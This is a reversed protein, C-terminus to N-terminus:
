QCVHCCLRHRGFRPPGLCFSDQAKYGGTPEVCWFLIPLIRLIWSLFVLSGGGLDSRVGNIMTSAVHKKKMLEVAKYGRRVDVGAEAYRQTHM